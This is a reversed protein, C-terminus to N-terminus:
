FRAIIRAIVSRAEQESRIVISREPNREVFKKEQDTLPKNGTKVEVFWVEGCVKYAIFDLLDGHCKSSDITIFGYDRFLNEIQNHHTDKRCHM